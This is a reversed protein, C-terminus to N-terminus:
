ISSPDNVSDAEAEGALSALLRYLTMVLQEREGASLASLIQEQNAAHDPLVRDILDLGTPTLEALVSRRDDSTRRRVVLGREELQDMRNTMAGSTVMASRLLDRMTMRYPAGSRRLTALVDFEWSELGYKVFVRRLLKEVLRSARSLRGIVATPGMDIDPRERRWEEIIRGVGSETPPERKPRRTLVSKPSARM